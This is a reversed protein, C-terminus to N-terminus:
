PPRVCPSDLSQCVAKRARGLPCFMILGILVLRFAIRLTFRSIDLDFIGNHCPLARPSTPVALGKLLTPYVRRAPHPVSTRPAQYM